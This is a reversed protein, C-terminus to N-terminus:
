FNCLKNGLEGVSFKDNLKFLYDPDNQIDIQFGDKQIMELYINETQQNWYQYGKHNRAPDPRDQLWALGSYIMSLAEKPQIGYNNILFTKMMAVYELLMTKERDTNYYDTKNSIANAILMHSIEHVITSAIFEESANSNFKTIDLHIYCDIAGNSKFIPYSEAAGKKVATDKFYLNIKNNQGFIDTIKQSLEDPIGSNLLKNLINALCPNSIDILIKNTNDAPDDGGAPVGGGDLVVELNQNTIGKMNNYFILLYTTYNKKISTTVVVEPLTEGEFSKIQDKNLPNNNNSKIANGQKFDVKSLCKGTVDYVIVTGSFGSFDYKNKHIKHYSIDPLTSVIFGTIKNNVLSTVLQLYNGTISDYSLPVSIGKRGNNDFNKFAKNWNIVPPVIDNSGLSLSKINNEVTPKSSYSVISDHWNKVTKTLLTIENQTALKNNNTQIPSEKQCANLISICVLLLILRLNIIIKMYNSYYIELQNFKKVLINYM